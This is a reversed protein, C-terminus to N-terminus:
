WVTIVGGSYSIHGYSSPIARVTVEQLYFGDDAVITQPSDSPTAQKAQALEKAESPEITGRHHVDTASMTGQGNKPRIDITTAMKEGLRM